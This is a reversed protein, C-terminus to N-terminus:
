VIYEILETGASKADRIHVSEGGLPEKCVDFMSFLCHSAQM